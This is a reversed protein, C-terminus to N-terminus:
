QQTTELLEFERLSNGDIGTSGPTYCALNLSYGNDDMSYSFRNEQFFEKAYRKNSTIEKICYSNYDRHSNCEFVIYIMNM